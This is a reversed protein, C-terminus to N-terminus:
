EDKTSPDRIGRVGPDTSRAAASRIQHTANTTAKEIKADHLAVVKTDHSRILGYGLGFVSLALVVTALIRAGIASLGFMAEIAAM